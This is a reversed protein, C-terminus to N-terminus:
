SNHAQPMPHLPLHCLLLLKVLDVTSSRYYGYCGDVSTRYQKTRSESNEEEATHETGRRKPPPRTTQLRHAHGPTPTIITQLTPKAIDFTTRRKESSHHPVGHCKNRVYEHSQETYTNGTGMSDRFATATCLAFVPLKCTNAGIITGM